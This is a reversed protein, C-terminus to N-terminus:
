SKGSMPQNIMLRRLVERDPQLLVRGDFQDPVIWKFNEIERRKIRGPVLRCLFYHIVFDKGNVRCKLTCYYKASSVRIGLEESIERRVCAERSEGRDLQGGPFEWTLPNTQDRKRQTVLLRNRRRIVAACVVIVM